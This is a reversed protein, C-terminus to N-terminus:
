LSACYPNSSSCLTPLEEIAGGWHKIQPLFYFTTAISLDRLTNEPDFLIVKKNNGLAIGMETHCGKGGPLIVIIVDSDVVAQFENMGIVTLEEKTEARENKTWDYTLEWNLTNKIKEGIQQVLLKNVFGSAMYFKM